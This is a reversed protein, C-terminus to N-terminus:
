IESGQTLSGLPKRFGKPDVDKGLSRRPFFTYVHIPHVCIFALVM